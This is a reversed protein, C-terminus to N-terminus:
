KVQVSTSGDFSTKMKSINLVYSRAGRTNHISQEKFPRFLDDFITPLSSNLHDFILMCNNLIITNTLNPRKAETFLPECPHREEKFNIIRLATDQARQVM